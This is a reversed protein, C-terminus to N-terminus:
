RHSATAPERRISSTARSLAISTGRENLMDEAADIIRQANPLTADEQARSYPLTEMTTVRAFRVGSTSEALLAAIEGSLGGSTYDEDVAIVHGTSDALAVVAQRDLPAVTRLDLVACQVGREALTRAAQLCRHVGVGLSVLAVDSGERLTAAVGTPVPAPPEQVVGHAGDSPVDFSVTRRNGAGLYDLWYDSLLKHELYVVPGDDAIASLMLGAADAPNSPVVVTLGPIGALMGWLTQGHQGGDGYGGGCAARVVLPSSWRGGSFTKLKAAHNLLPDLAVGIFDVLMIEVVPRLGAMAAGVAAGLFASESIPTNRVRSSGFRVLLNRRLMQVDEGFIVVREDESMAQELASEIAQSFSTM